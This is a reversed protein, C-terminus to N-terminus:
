EEMFDDFTVEPKAEIDIVDEEETEGAEARAEAMQAQKIEEAKALVEKPDLRM